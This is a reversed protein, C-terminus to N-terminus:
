EATTKTAILGLEKAKGVLLRGLRKHGAKLYNDAWFKAFAKQVKPDMKSLIKEAEKAAADMAAPDFERKSNGNNSNTAEKATSKKVAM